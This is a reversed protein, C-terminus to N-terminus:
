SVQLLAVMKYFYEAKDVGSCTLSKEGWILNHVISVSTTSQFGIGRTDGYITWLYEHGNSIFVILPKYPFTFTKSDAGSGNYAATYIQCNGCLALAASTSNTLTNIASQRANAEATIANKRATEEASVAAKRAAEEASVASKRANIEATLDAQKAKEALSIDHAHLAADIKANDTNFDTMLIRDNIEWQSLNYNTTQKM